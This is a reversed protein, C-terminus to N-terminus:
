DKDSLSNYRKLLLETIKDTILDYEEITKLNSIELSEIIDTNKHYFYSLDLEPNKEKIRILAGKLFIHLFDEMAETIKLLPPENIKVYVKNLDKLNLVALLNSEKETESSYIKRKLNTDQVMDESIPETFYKEPNVAQFYLEDASSFSQKTIMSNLLNISDKLEKIEIQLEELQEEKRYYLNQIKALIQTLKEIDTPNERGDM